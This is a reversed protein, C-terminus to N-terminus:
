PRRTASELRHLSELRTTDELVDCFETLIRRARAFDLAHLRALHSCDDLDRPRHAVLKMIVLDTPRPVHIRATGFARLEAANVLEHEFPLWALGLDVPTRSPEHVLTVVNTHRVFEVINPVRPTFGRRDMRELLLELEVTDGPLTADVDVTGRGVGLAIAAVGGIIAHPGGLSSLAAELEAVADQFTATNM